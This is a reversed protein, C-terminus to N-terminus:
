CAKKFGESLKMVLYLFVITYSSSPRDNLSTHVHSMVPEHIYNLAHVNNMGRAAGEPVFSREHGSNM